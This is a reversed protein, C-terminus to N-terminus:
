SGEFVRGSSMSNSFEWSQGNHFFSFIECPEMPIEVYGGGTIPKRGLLISAILILVSRSTVILMSDVQTCIIEKYFKLGREYFAYPSEGNPLHLNQVELNGKRWEEMQAAEVPFLRMAEDKSLGALTGLNLPDLFKHTFVRMDLVDNIINLTEVVQPQHSYWANRINFRSSSLWAAVEAAQTRGKDTLATGTGGHRDELNKLAEAHRLLILWRRESPCM